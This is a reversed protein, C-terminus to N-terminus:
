FCSHLSNMQQASLHITFIGFGTGMSWLNVAMWVHSCYVWMSNLFLLRITRCASGYGEGLAGRGLSELVESM